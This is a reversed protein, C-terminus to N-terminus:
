GFHAKRHCNPCIAVTNEVTDKGGRSLPLIHHVELYPLGNTKRKFPACSECHQCIGKAKRLAAAVVYPNREFVTQTIDRSTPTEAASQLYYNLRALDLNYAEQVLGDFDVTEDTSLSEDTRPSGTLYEDPLFGRHKGPSLNEDSFIAMGALVLDLNDDDLPLEASLSDVGYNPSLHSSSIILKGPTKIEIRIFVAEARESARPRIGCRLDPIDTFYWDLKVHNAERLIKELQTKALLNVDNLRGLLVSNIKFHSLM